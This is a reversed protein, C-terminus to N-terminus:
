VRIPLPVARLHQNKQLSIGFKDEMDMDEPTVSDELKWDFSHILAGLTLHVMRTALPLGLCIRRGDGLVKGACVLKPQDMQKPRAWYGMCESSSTCGKPNHLWMIRDAEVKRPLLLPIAPHLRFTEKVIAQLYPLRSINSEELPNGKGITHQLEVKAKMLIEPNRLIEAM